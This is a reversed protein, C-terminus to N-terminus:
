PICEIEKTLPQAARLTDFGVSSIKGRWSESEIERKMLFDSLEPTLRFGDM